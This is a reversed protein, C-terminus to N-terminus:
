VNLMQTAPSFTRALINDHSSGQSYIKGVTPVMAHMTTNLAARDILIVAVKVVKQLQESFRSLAEPEDNMRVAEEVVVIVGDDL